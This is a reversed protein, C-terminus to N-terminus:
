ILFHYGKEALLNAILPQKDLYEKDVKFWGKKEYEEEEWNDKLPFVVDLNYSLSKDNPSINVLCTQLIGSIEQIQLFLGKSLFVIDLKREIKTLRRKFNGKM